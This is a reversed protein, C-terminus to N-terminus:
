PGFSHPSTSESAEPNPTKRARLDKVGDMEMEHHRCGQSCFSKEGRYIYIDKSQQLSKKCTYCFSLFSSAEAKPNDPEQLTFYGEVICNDFIHTTRANPGHYTICTYGESLEMESASLCETLVHPSVSGRAPSNPSSFLKPPNRTRIGFDTPSEPYHLAPAPSPPISVKMSSGFVVLNSNSIAKHNREHMKDFLKGIIALGIGQSELDEWWRGKGRPFQDHMPTKLTFFPSTDPILALGLMSKVPDSFIRSPSFGGLAPTFSSVRNRSQNQTVPPQFSQHHNVLSQKGTVTRSRSRLM